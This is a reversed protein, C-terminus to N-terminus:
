LRPCVFRTDPIKRPKTFSISLEYGGNATAATRYQSINVDYSFGITLGNLHLGINPAVADNLRYMVGAVLDKGADINLDLGVGAATESANGQRTYIINPILDVMRSMKVRLGGHVSYRAPIRNSEGTSLFHNDPEAPHYLSIGVFPNVSKNPDGDFYLLGISGDTSTASQNSFPENSPLSPDFGSVPNFQDGFQYKSIDIRRNLLGLQFGASLMKYPALQVQYSLSLYGSSYQYGGDGTKQNFVMLGVAFNKPLVIDATLGQSVLPANSGPWQKRYNGGIRFDGDIIGTFAPNIWLPYAYYQTFHGDVQAQLGKFSGALLLVIFLIQRTKKM